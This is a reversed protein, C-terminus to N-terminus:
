RSQMAQRWAQLLRYGRENLVPEPRNPSRRFAIKIPEVRRSTDVVVSPTFKHLTNVIEALLDLPVSDSYDEVIINLAEIIASATEQKVSYGITNPMKYLKRLARLAAVVNAKSFQGTDAARRFAFASDRLRKLATNVGAIATQEAERELSGVAEATSKTAEIYARIDREPVGLLRSAAAYTAGLAVMSAALAVPNDSCDKM